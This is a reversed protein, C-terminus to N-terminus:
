LKVVADTVREGEQLDLTRGNGDPRLTGYAGVLLRIRTASINFSGAPMDAFLFRGQADVIVRKRQGAGTLTVLAGAIPANRVGDVVRGVILGSPRPGQSAAVSFLVVFPLWRMNSMLVANYVQWSIVEPTM